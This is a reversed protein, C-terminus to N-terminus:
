DIWKVFNALGNRPPFPKPTLASAKKPYGIPILALLQWPKIVGLLKELRKRDVLPGTMWCSGYGLSTAALLMNEIAAAVSQIEPSGRNLEIECKDLISSGVVKNFFSEYPKVLVAIVVPAKNFFTLYKSYSLIKDKDPQFKLYSIAQNIKSNVSEHMKDLLEKNRIVIFQALNQNSASPAQWGAQLIKEIDEKKPPTKKYERISCRKKIVELVENL